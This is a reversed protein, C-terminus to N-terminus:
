QTAKNTVPGTFVEYRKRLAPLRAGDGLFDRYGNAFRPSSLPPLGEPPPMDGRPSYFAPVRGQQEKSLIWTLFLKAANPHPADKLIGGATFFVPSKDKESM